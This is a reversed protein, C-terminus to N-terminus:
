TGRRAERWPRCPGSRSNNRQRAIAIIEEAKGIVRDNEQIDQKVKQLNAATRDILDRTQFSGWGPSTTKAWRRPASIWGGPLLMALGLGVLCGRKSVAGSM